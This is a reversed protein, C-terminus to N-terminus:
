NLIAIDAENLAKTIDELTKGTIYDPIRVGFEASGLMVKAKACFDKATEYDSKVTPTKTGSTTSASATASTKSTSITSSTGASNAAHATQTVTSTVTSSAAASTSSATGSSASSTTSGSPNKVLDYVVIVKVGQIKTKDTAIEADTNNKNEAVIASASIELWLEAGNKEAGTKASNVVSWLASLRKDPETLPLDKLNTTIDVNFFAPFRTNACYIKKFGAASLESTINGIYAASESKFPSLWPKGGKEPRNDHWTGGGQDEVIRYNGKVIGGATKDMLTSIRAAPVFGENRILTAIRSAALTGTVIEAEDKVEAISTKYLLNGDDNKLTVAVVECGSRKAAALEATLSAESLAANEPLYYVKGSTQPDPEANSTDDSSIIASMESSGAGIISSLLASTDPTGSNREKIYKMLPKGLGYGLVALACVAVVTIAVRLFRRAKSKKKNYLNFKSKKIKINTKKPAM